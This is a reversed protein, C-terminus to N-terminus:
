VYWLRNASVLNPRRGGAEGRNEFEWAVLRLINQQDEYPAMGETYGAIFTVTVANMQRRTAPWSTDYAAEIRAPTSMLDANYTAAALTQAASATDVYQISVISQVPTRALEIVDPFCDMRMELTQTCLALGNEAEYESRVSSILSVIRADHSNGKENLHEKAEALSVPEFLAETAVILSRHKM